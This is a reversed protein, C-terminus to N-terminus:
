TNKLFLTTWTKTTTCSIANFFKNNVNVLVYRQYRFLACLTYTPVYKGLQNPFYTGGLARARSLMKPFKFIKKTKKKIWKHHSIAKVIVCKRILSLQWNFYHLYRTHLRFASRSHVVTATTVLKENIKSRLVVMTSLENNKYLPWRDSHRIGISAM